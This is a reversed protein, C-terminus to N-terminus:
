RSYPQIKGVKSCPKPVLDGWFLKKFMNIIEQKGMHIRKPAPLALTAMSLIYKAM